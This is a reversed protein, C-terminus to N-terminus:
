AIRFHFGHSLAWCEHPVGAAKIGRCHVFGDLKGRRKRERKWEREGESERREREKTQHFAIKLGHRFKWRYRPGWPEELPGERRNRDEDRYNRGKQPLPSALQMPNAFIFTRALLHKSPQISLRNTNGISSVALHLNTYSRYSLTQHPKETNSNM